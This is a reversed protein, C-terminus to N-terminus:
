INSSDDFGGTDFGDSDFNSDDFSADQVGPDQFNPDQYDADLGSTDNGYNNITVNEINEAPMGGWPGAGMGGIGGFGGMGGMWHPRFLSAIGEALLTGGAVGAAMSAANRLFGGSAPQAWPGTPAAAAQQYVPQQYPAPQPPATNGSNPVSGRNWPGAGGLFGAGGASQGSRAESLQRDLEAIHRQADNLAM